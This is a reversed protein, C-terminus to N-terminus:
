AHRGNGRTLEKYILKVDASRGLVDERIIRSASWPAGTEIQRKRAARKLAMRFAREAKFTIAIMELLNKMSPM